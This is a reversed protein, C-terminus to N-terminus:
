CKNVITKKKPKRRVTERDSVQRQCKNVINIVNQKLKCNMKQKRKLTDYFWLIDYYIQRRHNMKQKVKPVKLTGLSKVEIEFM